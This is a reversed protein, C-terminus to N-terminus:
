IPFPCNLLHARGRRYARLLNERATGGMTVDDSQTKGTYKIQRPHRGFGLRPERHTPVAWALRSGLERRLQLALQVREGLSARPRRPGKFHRCAARIGCATRSAPVAAM